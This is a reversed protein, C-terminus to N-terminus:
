RLHDNSVDIWIFYERDFRDSWLSPWMLDEKWTEVSVECHNKYILSKRYLHRRKQKWLLM